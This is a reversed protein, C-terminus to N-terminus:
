ALNGIQPAKSVLYSFLDVPYPQSSKQQKKKHDVVPDSSLGFYRVAIGQLLQLAEGLNRSVALPGRACNDFEELSIQRLEDFPISLETKLRETDILKGDAVANLTRKSLTWAVAYNGHKYVLRPQGSSHLEEELMRRQIYRNVRVANALTLGSLGNGFLQKYQQSDTNLLASPEKKVWYVFRPDLQFMALAYAAESIHIKRPDSTFDPASAKYAYQLGLLSLERRLREQEDDLAAFNWSDVQNQHNRARTVAKGFEGDSDAKIITILVRARSIDKDANESKFLASTAITQAGNIVSLGRLKLRKGGSRSDKPEIIDALMTVGNNLHMFLEPHSDLTERIAVNIPTKKGLFTRINREYLAIGNKNHLAVLDDIKILGFYTVRPETVTQCKQITLTEDVKHLAKSDLLYARTRKDDFDEYTNELREDEIDEAGLMELVADHAHKSIGEGVHAIVLKIHSCEAIADEIEVRRTQVHQNFSDIDLKVLKRIGQCFKLAEALDFTSTAKLKGQILYLTESSAHYYVADIGYDDFDDVVAGGAEAQSIGCLSSLAFASFARSLNKRAQEDAPRKTDLLPPLHPVFDTELAKELLAFYQADLALDEIVYM